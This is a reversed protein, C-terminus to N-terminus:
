FNQKDLGIFATITPQFTSSLLLLTLSVVISARPSPLVFFLSPPVSFSVLSQTPKMHMPRSLINM